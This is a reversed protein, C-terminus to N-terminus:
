MFGEYDTVEADKNTYYEQIAARKLDLGYDSELNGCSVRTPYKALFLTNVKKLGLIIM